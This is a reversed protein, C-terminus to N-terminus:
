FAWFILKLSILTVEGVRIILTMLARTVLIVLWIAFKPLFPAKVRILLPVAVMLVPIVLIPVTWHKTLSGVVLNVTVQVLQNPSVSVAVVVVILFVVLLLHRIFLAIFM